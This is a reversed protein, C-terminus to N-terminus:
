IPKVIPCTLLNQIDSFMQQRNGYTLCRPCNDAFFGCAVQIEDFSLKHSPDLVDSGLTESLYKTIDVDSWVVDTWIANFELSQDDTALGLRQNLRALTAEQLINEKTLQVYLTTVFLARRIHSPLIIGLIRCVFTLIGIKLACLLQLM